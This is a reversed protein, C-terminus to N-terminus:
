GPLPLRELLALLSHTSARWNLAEEYHRRAGDRLAQGARRASWVEAILAAAADVFGDLPVMFGSKGHQVMSPVGGVDSAIVPVGNAQAEALVVPTCDARTPLVFFSASAYLRALSAATREDDKELPGHVTVYPPLACGPPADSGVVDLSVPVGRSDLLEATRVALDIGKRVWGRGVLLLRCVGDDAVPPRAGPDEINAGYPVVALRDAPVGYSDAATQAAWDSSYVALAVRDLAAREMAHGLRAYRRSLSTYSPYFDVLGAFTADTWTVVPVGVELRAVPVTSPCLLLDPRHRAVAREVQSAYGDLIAPERLRSYYGRGLANRAVQAAKFPLGFRERLPSADVLDVGADILGQRMHFPTGSWSTIDRADEVAVMLVRM